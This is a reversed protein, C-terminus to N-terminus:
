NEHVQKQHMMKRQEQKAILGTVPIIFCTTIFTVVKDYLKVNLLHHEIHYNNTGKQEKVRTSNAEKVYAHSILIPGFM